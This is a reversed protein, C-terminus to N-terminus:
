GDLKNLVAIDATSQWTYVRPAFLPTGLRSFALFSIREPKIEPPYRFLRLSKRTISSIIGHCELNMGRSGEYIM